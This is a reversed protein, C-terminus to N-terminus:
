KKEVCKIDQAQNSIKCLLGNGEAFITTTQVKAMKDCIVKTRIRSSTQCEDKSTVEQSIKFEEPNGYQRLLVNAKSLLDAGSHSELRAFESTSKDGTTSARSALTFSLVMMVSLTAWIVKKVNSRM